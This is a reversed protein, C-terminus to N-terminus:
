RPERLYRVLQRVIENADTGSGTLEGLRRDVDVPLRLQKSAEVLLDVTARPHACHELLARLANVDFSNM